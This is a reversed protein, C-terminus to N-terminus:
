WAGYPYTKGKIFDPTEGYYEYGEPHKSMGKCVTMRDGSVTKLKEVPVPYNEGGASNQLWVRVKGEPALGFLMTDYWAINGFMDKGTSVRMKRWVSEPFFLSTEYSKKDIISDWCFIMYQPPQKAKNFHISSRRVTESWKGVSYPNDQTSDLTNFTYLYGATDIIRAHTVLAPLLKPTFFAFEWEGYPLTWDGKAALSSCCDQSTKEAQCGALALLLSLALIKKINM